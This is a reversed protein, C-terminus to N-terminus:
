CSTFGKWYFNKCGAKRERPPLENPPEASREATARASPLRGAGRSQGEAPAMRALLEELAREGWEQSPDGAGRAAEQPARHARTDLEPQPDRDWDLDRRADPQSSVAPSCALLCLVFALPCREGARM